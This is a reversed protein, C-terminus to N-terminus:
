ITSFKETLEGESRYCVIERDGDFYREIMDAYGSIQFGQCSPIEFNRGKIQNENSQSAASLNLSIKSTQIIRIMEQQSVRTSDIIREIQGQSILRIRRALSHFRNLKWMSGWVRVPIGQKRLSRVVQKRSGHAQGVFTV